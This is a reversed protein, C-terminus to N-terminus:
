GRFAVSSRGLVELMFRVPGALTPPYTVSLHVEGGAAGKLRFRFPQDQRAWRGPAVMWRLTARPSGTEVRFPQEEEPLVTWDGAPLRLSVQWRGELKEAEAQYTETRVTDLRTELVRPGRCGAALALGVLVGGTRV